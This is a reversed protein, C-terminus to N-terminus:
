WPAIVRGEPPKGGPPKSGRLSAVYAAVLVIQQDSLKQRWAPMAGGGAGRLLITVFDGLDRINKYHHDGLNPGVGGQGLNGHCSACNSKFTSAGVSLWSPEDMFRRVGAGDLSVDGLQDMQSQMNASFERQYRDVASRGTVGNHFYFLYLPACVCGLFMGRQWWKPPPRDTLQIVPTAESMPPPVEKMTDRTM